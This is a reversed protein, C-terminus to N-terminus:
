ADHHRPNRPRSLSSKSNKPCGGGNEATLVSYGAKSIVSKLITLNVLDDDVILITKQHSKEVKM